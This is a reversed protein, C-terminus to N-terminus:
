CSTVCWSTMVLNTNNCALYFFFAFYIHSLQFHFSVQLDFSTLLFTKMINWDMLYVTERNTCPSSLRPWWFSSYLSVSQNMCSPHLPAKMLVNVLESPDGSIATENILLSTSLTLFFLFFSVLSSKLRKLSFIFAFFFGYFSHIEVQFLFHFILLSYTQTNWPRNPSITDVAGKSRQTWTFVCPELGWYTIRIM